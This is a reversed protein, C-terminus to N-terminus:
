SKECAIGDKDRDLGAHYKLVLKYIRSSRLFTTVPEGSTHDRAGARGVGHHYKANFQTCNKYPAPIVTTAASATTALGCGILAATAGVCRRKRTKNM